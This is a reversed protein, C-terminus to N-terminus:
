VDLSRQGSPMRFVGAVGILRSETKLFFRQSPSTEFDSKTVHFVGRGDWAAATEIASLDRKSRCVHPLPPPLIAAFSLSHLARMLLSNRFSQNDLLFHM